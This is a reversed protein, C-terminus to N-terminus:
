LWSNGTTESNLERIVNKIELMAIEVCHHIEGESLNGKNSLVTELEHLARNLMYQKSPSPPMGRIIREGFKVGVSGVEGFGDNPCYTWITGSGRGCEM